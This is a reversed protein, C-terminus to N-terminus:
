RGIPEVHVEVLNRAEGGLRIDLRHVAVPERSWWVPHRRRPERLHVDFGVAGTPRFLTGGLLAGQLELTTPGGPGFEVRLRDVGEPAWVLLSAERGVQPRSPGEGPSADSELLQWVIAGRREPPFGPLERLTSEEPLWGLLRRSWPRLTEFDGDGTRSSDAAGVLFGAGALVAALGLSARQPWAAVLAAFLPLFAPNGPVGPTGAWDFPVLVLSLLLAAFAAPLLLARPPDPGPGFAHLLLVPYHVLIGASSGVCLFLLNWGLLGPDGLPRLSLSGSGFLFDLLLALALGFGFAGRGAARGSAGALAKWFPLALPLLWPQISLAGGFALGAVGFRTASSGARLGGDYVEPIRWSLNAERRGWLLVSALAVSLAALLEPTFRFGFTWASSGLLATAAWAFARWGFRPWLVWAWLLALAAVGPLGYWAGRERAGFSGTLRVLAPVREAGSGTALSPARGFTELLSDGTSAGAEARFGSGAPAGPDRADGGVPAKGTGLRSGPELQSGFLGFALIWVQWSVM